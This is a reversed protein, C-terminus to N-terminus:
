IIQFSIIAAACHTLALCNKMFVGTQLDLGSSASPVIYDMVFGLNRVVVM